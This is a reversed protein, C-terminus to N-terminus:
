NRIWTESGPSCLSTDLSQWASSASSHQCQRQSGPQWDSPGQQPGPQQWPLALPFSAFRFDRGPGLCSTWASVVLVWCEPGSWPPVLVWSGTDCYWVGRWCWHDRMAPQRHIAPVSKVQQISSPEGSDPDCLCTKCGVNMLLPGWCGCLMSLHQQYHVSHVWWKIIPIWHRCCKICFLDYHNTFM